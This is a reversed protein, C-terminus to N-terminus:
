FPVKTEEESVISNVYSRQAGGFEDNIVEVKVKRGKIADLVSRLTGRPNVHLTDCFNRYKWCKNIEKKTMGAVPLNTNASIVQGAWESEGVLKFRWWACASGSASTYPDIDNIIADYIAEPVVPFAEVEDGVIERDLISEDSM